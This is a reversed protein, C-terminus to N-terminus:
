TMKKFNSKTMILKLIWLKELDRLKWTLLMPGRTRRQIPRTTLKDFRSSASKIQCYIPVRYEIM